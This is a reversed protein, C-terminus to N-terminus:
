VGVVAVEGKADINCHDVTERKYEADNCPNQVADIPRIVAKRIENCRYQLFVKEDRHFLDEKVNAVPPRRLAAWLRGNLEPTFDRVV